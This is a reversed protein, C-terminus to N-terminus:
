KSLHNGVFLVLQNVVYVEVDVHERRGQQSNTILVSVENDAFTMSIEEAPGLYRVLPDVSAVPAYQYASYGSEADGDFTLTLEGWAAPDVQSYHEQLYALM